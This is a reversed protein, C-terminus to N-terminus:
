HKSRAPYVFDCHADSELILECHVAPVGAPFCRKCLLATKPKWYNLKRELRTSGHTFNFQWYTGCIARGVEPRLIHTVGNHDSRKEFM